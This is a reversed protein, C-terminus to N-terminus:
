VAWTTVVAHVIAYAAVDSSSKRENVIGNINTCHLLEGTVLPAFPFLLWLTFFPPSVAFMIVWTALALALGLGFLFLFCLAISFFPAIGM